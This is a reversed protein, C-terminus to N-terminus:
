NELNSVSEENEKTVDCVEQVDREEHKKSKNRKGQPTFLSFLKGVMLVINNCNKMSYKKGLAKGFITLSAIVASVLAAVIISLTQSTSNALIKVIISAGAAGSM